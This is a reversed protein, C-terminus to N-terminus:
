SEDAKEILKIEDEGPVMGLNGGEDWDIHVTGLGDVSTVTGKAGPKLDTHEDTTSVLEVRDGQDYPSPRKHNNRRLNNHYGPPQDM